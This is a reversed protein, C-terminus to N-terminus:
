NIKQLHRNPDANPAGVILDDFGDGNVDGASSVLAAGDDVTEGNIAFGGIGGAVESLQVSNNDAKGFVVYSKGSSQGNPDADPAGVILDDFGDGNVDGAGSVSFGAGYGEGEGNIAFGGIGASVNSLEVATGDAKGFVVYSKGSSEGNPDAGFAGVILDDLGDGNVDGTGSVSFGSNDGAAEGNILFGSIGFSVDSLNVASSDTKGFVVYSKSPNGSFLGGASGVILDDFGDGNVDGADSVSWGSYDGATEGNIVFGSTNSSLAIDSLEVTSNVSLSATATVTGDISDNVTYDFTAVGV